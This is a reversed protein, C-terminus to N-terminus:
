ILSGDDTNAVSMDIVDTMDDSLTVVSQDISDDTAVDMMASTAMNASTVSNLHGQQIYDQPNSVYNFKGNAEIPSGSIYDATFWKNNWTFQLTQPDKAIYTNGDWKNSGNYMLDTDGSAAYGNQGAKLMVITNGHINNDLTYHPGFSGGGRVDYIMGLGQGVDSAVHNGTVEVKQSNQILMDSGWYGVEYGDQNNHTTVNGKILAERSAEFQLGLNQNKTMYNNEVLVKQNDWDFWLGTGNNHSMESNKVTVNDSTLIKVGGAEWWTYFGAYNNGNATIGDIYLGSTDHAHIGLQGNNSFNGGLIKMGDGAMVGAGHNQVADVNILTWNKTTHGEVAGHQAMSAYHKMTINEITVGQTTGGDFASTTKMAQTTKGSPDDKIYVKGGSYYFEGQGVEGQSGVRVYPTDNVILDEKYQAVGDRGEGHSYGPAPFGDAVWYGNSYSWGKIDMAGSMVAGEEGVFTQFSKPQIQAQSYVGAKLLFTTGEPHSDVIAQLNDGPKMTIVNPGHDTSDAEVTLKVSATGTSGNADTVKYIFSDSGAFGDKKTYTVTGDANVKATGNASQTDISVVPGGDAIDDNGLVNVQVSAQGKSVTASDNVLVVPRDLNSVDVTVTGTASRGAADEITYTFTDTGTFDANPIYDVTGDENVKATGSAGNSVDVVKLGQVTGSNYQYAIGKVFYDSSDTAYTTGNVAMTKTELGNANQEYSTAKFEISAFGASKVLLKGGSAAVDKASFTVVSGIAQGAADYLQYTGRENGEPSNPNFAAFEVEAQTVTKGFDVKIGQSAKTVPNYGMEQTAMQSGNSRGEVGFGSGWNTAGKFLTGGSATVTVGEPLGKDWSVVGTGSTGTSGGDGDNALVNVTVAKGVSTTAADPNVVLAPMSPDTAVAVTATATTEAGTGDTVVYTFTDTGSFGAKPTYTVTGDDNKVVSGSNGQTVSAVSLTDGDVDTDNALVDMVVATGVETSASDAEAVPADNVPDVTVQVTRVTETGDAATVTATFEDQGHWDQNPTYTVTGDANVAVTGNAGDTATVTGTGTGGPATTGGTYDYAIAKILYDSSDTAYTVGDVAKRGTEAWHNATAYNTASFEVAAFGESTIVLTGGAAAVQSASFTVPTGIAKGEADLLQYVGRENGENSGASFASFSVEARTVTKGGFDFTMGQSAKTVPNYGLEVTTGQSANTRGDVGFGNGWATTGKFATGGTATVTVGEPLDADFSIVGEGTTAVAPVTAEGTVGALVDITVAIDEDTTTKTMEDVPGEVPGAPTDDYSVEVSKVLFDSSDVAYERGGSTALTTEMEFTDNEYSTAAIRVSAFGGEAAITLVGGAAEVESATFTVPEGVVAGDADLLEYTGRENGEYGGAKFADFTIKAEVVTHGFDFVLAESTQTVPDYGLDNGNKAGILNTRGAVGFGEGWKSQGKTLDGGEARISVGEPLPQDYAVTFTGTHTTIANM